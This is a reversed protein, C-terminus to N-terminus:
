LCNASSTKKNRQYKNSILNYDKRLKSNVFIQMKSFVADYDLCM